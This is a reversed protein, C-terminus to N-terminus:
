PFFWGFLTKAGIGCTVVIFTVVSYAIITCGISGLINSKSRPQQDDYGITIQPRGVPKEKIAELVEPEQIVLRLFRDYSDADCHLILYRLSEEHQTQSCIVRISHTMDIGSWHPNINLGGPWRM